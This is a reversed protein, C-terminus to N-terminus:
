KRENLGKEKLFLVDLEFDSLSDNYNKKTEVTIHLNNSFLNIIKKLDFSGFGLHEHQDIVGNIDGDALHYVKPDLENFKLLYGYWDIGQANASYIAHGVDFCFGVGTNELIFDIDQPSYGNCILKKDITYYPKNEILVRLDNIKNLQFVTQGIDGDIGPHFIIFESDLTDAYMQAQSVLRLNQNLMEKNALNLGVASHSAHIIFPIDLSKWINIYEDYSNPVVFLEIYDYIKKEYLELAPKIYNKNTSWLKLGLKYM